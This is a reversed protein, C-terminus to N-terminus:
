GGTVIGTIWLTVIGFRKILPARRNPPLPLKREGSQGISLRLAWGGLFDGWPEPNSGIPWSQITGVRGRAIAQEAIEKCTPARTAGSLDCYAQYCKPRPRRRVSGEELAQVKMPQPTGSCHATKQFGGVIEKRSKMADAVLLLPLLIQNTRPRVSPLFINKVEFTDLVDFRWMLLM